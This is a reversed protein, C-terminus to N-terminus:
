APGHDEAGPPQVAAEEERRLGGGGGGRHGLPLCARYPVFEPEPPPLARLQLILEDTPMLHLTKKALPYNLTKRVINRWTSSLPRAPTPQPFTRVHRGPKSPAHKYPLHTHTPPDRYKVRRSSKANPGRIASQCCACGESVKVSPIRNKVARDWLALSSSSRSRNDTHSRAKRHATALAQAAWARRGHHRHTYPM